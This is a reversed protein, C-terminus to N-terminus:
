PEFAASFELSLSLKSTSYVSRLPNEFVFEYTTLAARAGVGLALEVPHVHLALTPLVGVSAWGRTASTPRSIASDNGRATLAGAQGSLCPRFSFATSLRWKSPCADLQSSLWTFTGLEAAPSVVGTRAALASLALHPAWLGWQEPRVDFGLGAGAALLASPAIGLELAISPGLTFPSHVSPAASAPPLASEATGTLPAPRTRSNASSAPKSDSEDIRPEPGASPANAITQYIILAVVLAAAEVAENCSSTAFERLNAAVGPSEFSVEAAAGTDTIAIRVSAVSGSREDEFDISHGLRRTVAERFQDRTPCSTPAEYRLTMSQPASAFSSRPAGIAAAACLLPMLPRPLCSILM